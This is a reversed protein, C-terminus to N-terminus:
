TGELTCTHASGGVCVGYFRKVCVFNPVGFCCCFLLNLYELVGPKCDALFSASTRWSLKLAVALIVKPWCLMSQTLKGPPLHGKWQCYGPLRKGAKCNCGVKEPDPGALFRDPLTGSRFASGQEGNFIYIYGQYRNLKPSCLTWAQQQTSLVNM